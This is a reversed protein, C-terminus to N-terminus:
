RNARIWWTEAMRLAAQAEEVPSFAAKPIMMASNAGTFIVIHGQTAVLDEVQTWLTTHDVGATTKTIGEPAFLADYSRRRAPGMLFSAFFHLYQVLPTLLYVIIAAYLFSIAIAILMFVGTMAMGTIDPLNPTHTLTDFMDRGTWGVALAIAVAIGATIYLRQRSLLKKKLWAGFFAHFSGLGVRYGTVKFSGESM